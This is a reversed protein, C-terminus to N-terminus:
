VQSKQIASVFNVEQHLQSANEKAINISKALNLAKELTIKGESLLKEKIHAYNPLLGCIFIDKILDERLQEFECSSSLNKLSTVYQEISEDASQKRSFFKHREMAVNARPIFYADLKAVLDEYKVTDMDADFSDFVQLCDPGLHHLLLAVKRQNSQQELNSARMFIKFQNKWMKWAVCMNSEKLNLPTITTAVSLVQPSSVENKPETM